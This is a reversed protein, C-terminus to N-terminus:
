WAKGLAEQAGVGDGRKRRAEAILRWNSKILESNSKSLTNSKKALDEAADYQGQKLRIESLAHWLEPNKPQIRIAREVESAADGYSRSKFKGEISSELALVAPPAEQNFLKRPGSPQVPVPPAPQAAQSDLAPLEPTIVPDPTSPLASTFASDLSTDSATSYPSAQADDPRKLDDTEQSRAPPESERSLKLLAQDELGTEIPATVVRPQVREITPHPTISPSPSSRPEVSACGSLLMVAFAFTRGPHFTLHQILTFASHM